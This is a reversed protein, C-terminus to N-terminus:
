KILFSEQAAKLVSFDASVVSDYSVSVFYSGKGSKTFAIQDIFVVKEKVILEFAMDCGQMGKYDIFESRSGKVAALDISYLKAFDSIMNATLLNCDTQKKIEGDTSTSVLGISNFGNLSNREKSQYQQDVNQSPVQTFGTPYYFTYNETDVKQLDVQGRNPFPQFETIGFKYNSNFVWVISVIVGLVFLVGFCAFVLLGLKSGSIKNLKVRNNEESMIHWNLLFVSEKGIIVNTLENGARWIFSVPVCKQTGAEM